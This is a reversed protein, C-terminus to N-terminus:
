YEEEDPEGPEPAVYDVYLTFEYKVAMQGDKDVDFTQDEAVDAALFALARHKQNDLEECALDRAHDQDVDIDPGAHRSIEADTCGAPLRSDQTM